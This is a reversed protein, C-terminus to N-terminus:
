LQAVCKIEDNRHDSGRNYEREKKERREMGENRIELEIM